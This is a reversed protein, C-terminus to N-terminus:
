QGSKRRTAEILLRLPLVRGAHVVGGGYGLVPGPPRREAAACRVQTAGAPDYLSTAMLSYFPVVFFLILWLAAPLLLLYGVAGTRRTM